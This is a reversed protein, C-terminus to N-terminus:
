SLRPQDQGDGCAQEQAEDSELYAALVGQEPGTQEPLGVQSSRVESPRATRM